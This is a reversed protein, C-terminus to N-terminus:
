KAKSSMTAHRVERFAFLSDKKIPLLFLLQTSTAKPM